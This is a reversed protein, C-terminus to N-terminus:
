TPAPTDKNGQLKRLVAENTQARSYCGNQITPKYSSMFFLLINRM